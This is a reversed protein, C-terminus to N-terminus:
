ICRNGKDFNGYFNIKQVKQYYKLFQKAGEYDITNM